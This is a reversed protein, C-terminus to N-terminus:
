NFFISHVEESRSNCLEVKTRTIAGTCAAGFDVTQKKFYVGHLSNELQCSASASTTVGNDKQELQLSEKGVKSCEEPSDICLLRMCRARDYTSKLKDRSSKSRDISFYFDVDTNTEM